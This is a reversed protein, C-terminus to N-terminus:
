LCSGKWVWDWVCSNEGWQDTEQAGDLCSCKGHLHFCEVTLAREQTLRKGSVKFSLMLEKLSIFIKRNWTVYFTIHLVKLIDKATVLLPQYLRHGPLSAHCHYKSLWTKSIWQLSILRMFPGEVLKQSSSHVLEKNSFSLFKWQIQPLAVSLSFALLRSFSPSDWLCQSTWALDPPPPSFSNQTPIGLCLAMYDKALHFLKAKGLDGM